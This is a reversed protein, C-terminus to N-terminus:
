RKFHEMAVPHFGRQNCLEDFGMTRWYLPCAGNCVSFHECNRCQDHALFKERFLEARESHWVDLVDDKLINGVSEDYSACPIVDGNAGVSLLGDCASCGKNGLGHVIPNFMCMPTPSYWMFDVGRKKSEAVIELLLPGLESYHVALQRNLAATGSPIVLNMSFKDNQLENSVFAPMSACESLNDRNITTNTHVHVDVAKLNHVAATAREFSHRVTTIRDHTEATVGELSVQASNLGADALQRAYEANIRTGNTILNVRMGLGSAYGVLDPLDQRLTAEGGTFSVSPVEAEEYIKRLVQKVEGTTMEHDDAVPNTTCNCGAYCFTCKLNCRYTIAVESLIPLEAFRMEFPRIELASTHNLEDLTGEMFRKVELMFLQVDRVKHPERGTEGLLESVTKGDLLTKLIRAGQSNLKQAHNPRKIIINDSERVFVYPKIRSVFEDIWSIDPAIAAKMLSFEWERMGLPLCLSVGFPLCFSLSFPMGLPM